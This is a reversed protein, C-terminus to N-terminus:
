FGGVSDFRDLNEGFLNEFWEHTCKRRELGCLGGYSLVEWKDVDRLDFKYKNTSKVSFPFFLLFEKIKEM